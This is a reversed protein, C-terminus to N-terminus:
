LDRRYKHWKANKCFEVDKQCIPIKYIGSLSVFPVFLSISMKAVKTALHSYRRRSTQSEIRQMDKMRKMIKMPRICYAGVNGENKLGTGTFVVSMFMLFFLKKLETIRQTKETYSQTM